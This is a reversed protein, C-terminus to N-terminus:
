VCLERRGTTKAKVIFQKSKKELTNAATCTYTGPLLSSSTLVAENAMREQIPQSSQWSYVPAPNGTATCNLTIESNPVHDVVETEPTLFTPPFHVSADLPESTVTPPPQPGEPGLELVAVCRYQVGNEAKTPTVMLISSVQVPSSSTLESFSHNYVESQGKYWRLTLYQVPAINQVECLLQYEKGEVMAGTHNVTRISVSDPTKYLVLNLKEECQRPATFFVGYCIPEEIWDILSDVKWQVSLDQLTHTASIASEWGLVRVPRVAECSVSVSEGFGVVVRSPKLILSCGEGSVSRIMCLTVIWQLFNNGMNSEASCQRNLGSLSFDLKALSPKEAPFQVGPEDGTAESSWAKHFRLLCSRHHRLLTYSTLGVCIPESSTPRGKHHGDKNFSFVGQKTVFLVGVIALLVGLALFGGVLAALTTYNRPPEVVTFYKTRSGQTNAATCSYTGPLEYSPNLTSENPHRNEKMLQIPNPFHWSYAPIPNGTASCNLTFKRGAPIELTENAPSAFTPPYLVNLEHPESMISPLNPGFADFNMKAECWILAGHDDRHATLNSISTVNFPYVSRVDFTDTFFVENGKHWQISLNRIPAVNFVECEISYNEAEKMPGTPSPHSMFVSDPTKYVTVALTEFCQDANKLNLFCMPELRWDTVSKINLQLVSVGPTLATGGNSSEWGMGAAQDSSTSCNASFSDGIQVVAKPPNIEVQCIPSVAMGTNAILCSLILFLM